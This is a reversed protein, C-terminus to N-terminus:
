KQCKGDRNEKGEEENLEGEIKYMAYKRKKQRM